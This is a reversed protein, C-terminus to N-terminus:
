VRANTAPRRRTFLWLLVLPIIGIASCILMGVIGSSWSFQNTDYEKNWSYYREFWEGRWVELAYNNSWDIADCDEVPEQAFEACGRVYFTPDRLVPSVEDKTPLRGHKQRFAEIFNIAPQLREEIFEKDKRIQNPTFVLSMFGVFVFIAMWVLAILYGVILLWDRTKM